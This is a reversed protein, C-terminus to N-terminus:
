KCSIDFSIKEAFSSFFIEFHRRYFKKGLLSLMLTSGCQLAHYESVKVTVMRQALKVSSLNIIYNKNKGSFKIQSKHM